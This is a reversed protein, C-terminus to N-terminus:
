DIQFKRILVVHNANRAIQWEQVRLLTFFQHQEALYSGVVKTEFVKYFSVLFESQTRRNWQRSRCVILLREHRTEVDSREGISQILNKLWISVNNQGQFLNRLMKHNIHMLVSISSILLFLFENLQRRYIM